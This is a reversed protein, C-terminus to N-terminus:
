FIINLELDSGPTTKKVEVIKTMNCLIVDIQIWTCSLYKPLSKISESRINYKWECMGNGCIEVYKWKNELRM